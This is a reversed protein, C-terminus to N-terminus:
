VSAGQKAAQAKLECINIVVRIAGRLHKFKQVEHQLALGQGELDSIERNVVDLNITHDADWCPRFKNCSYCALPAYSCLSQRGCEATVERRGTVLDESVIAKERPIPDHKSIVRGLVEQYVPFHQDFAPQMADSIRDLVGQFFLDVYTQCTSDDAHM